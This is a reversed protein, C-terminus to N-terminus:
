YLPPTRDSINRFSDIITNPSFLFLDEGHIVDVRTFLLLNINYMRPCPRKNCEEGEWSEGECAKGGYAPRPSTCTRTRKM